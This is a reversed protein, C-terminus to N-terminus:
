KTRHFVSHWFSFPRTDGALIQPHSKIFEAAQELRSAFIHKPNYALKRWSSIIPYRKVQSASLDAITVSGAEIGPISDNTIVLDVDIAGFEEQADVIVRGKFYSVHAVAQATEFLHPGTFQHDSKLFGLYHVAENEFSSGM